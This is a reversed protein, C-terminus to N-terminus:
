RVTVTVDQYTGLGGDHALCRLVYTGPTEFTVGIRWRNGEPVPPPAWGPSWPSGGRLDVYPKFQPPDFRVAAGEGRYVFWTLRLGAASQLTGLASSFPSGFFAPLPEARPLGDDAAQASFRLPEGVRATRPAGGGDLELSPPRNDRSAEATTVGPGVAGLTATMVDANLLYGPRLTGYARETVGHTTLTWIVDRDGFDKPVRVGFLFFNRRPLFHTPQGLDPGGPELHNDQGVPVDIAEDWNRNFTGFVMMHSGDPNTGWGEYVPVVSRGRSWTTGPEQAASLHLTTWAAAIALLAWRGPRACTM